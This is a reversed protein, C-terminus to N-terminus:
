RGVPALSRFVELYEEAIVRWSYRRSAAHAAASMERRKSADCVVPELAQALSAPDGAKGLLAFPRDQFDENGPCDSLVCPRACAMAQVAVQAFGEALSPSFFVDASWLVEPVESM